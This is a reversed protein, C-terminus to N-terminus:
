VEYFIAGVELVDMLRINLLPAESDILTEGNVVTLVKSVHNFSAAYYTNSWLSVSMVAAMLYATYKKFIM